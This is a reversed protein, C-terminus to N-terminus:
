FINTGVSFMVILSFVSYESEFLGKVTKKKQM